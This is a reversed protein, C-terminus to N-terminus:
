LPTEFRWGFFRGSSGVVRASTEGAQPIVLDLREGEKLPDSSEVLMGEESLDHVVVQTGATSALSGEAQLSLKRRKSSRRDGTRPTPELRALLSM